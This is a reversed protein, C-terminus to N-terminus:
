TKWIGSARAIEAARQEMFGLLENLAPHGRVGVLMQDVHAVSPANVFGREAGRRLWSFAGQQDGAHALAQSLNWCFQDDVQAYEVLAPNTVTDRLGGRDGTLSHLYARALLGFYGTSDVDIQSFHHRAQDFRGSTAMFAALFFRTVHDRPEREIAREVLPLAEEARGLFVLPGALTASVIPTLPDLEFATRGYPVAMEPRGTMTLYIALWMYSDAQREAECARRLLRLMLAPDMVPAHLELLARAVLADALDPDIALAQDIL